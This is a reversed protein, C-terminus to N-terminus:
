KAKYHTHLLEHSKHGLPEGLFEKYLTKISENEHSKRVAKGADEAYIAEMRKTIIESNGHHYPQGGGNICGGPCAMVEVAHYNAEGNKIKELIKRANGLGSVVAVNLELDGVKVTAEKTGELGRVEKFDVCDLTKGTIKEYATRLAAELVGGSSAFIDAAGTSEGMPDEFSDEPMDNLDIGASKLMKALERTSLSYDVDAINNVALEDRSCEYKKALCPMISVVVMDKADKGIKQAYYSKAIAGFMQQPSKCSSPLNLMDPFQSEIFNIWGPCCSTLIPLNEGKTVREILEASEEM